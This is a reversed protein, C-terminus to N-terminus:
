KIEIMHEKKAEIHAPNKPLTIRLVGNEMNAAIKGKEVNEPLIMAQQFHTYSFERRLYKEGDKPEEKKETKKEMSVVLQNDENIKINFDERAMGPAAVDIKYEKDNEIVNIAPATANAKLMWDNDLFDNFISPLWGAQGRRIPLM